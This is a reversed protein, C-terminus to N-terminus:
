SRRKGEGGVDSGTAVGERTTTPRIQVSAGDVLRLQGDVVIADGGKLGKSVVSRQGITRAVTVHVLDAKQGDRIVFVYPGQQGILVASSPISIANVDTGLTARASVFAGPWLLENRNPMIAKALVTGTALDVTNEIYALHGTVATDGVTADVRVEGASLAKRLDGLLSQPIAFSVYIPDIQNVTAIPQADGAKFTTGAKLAISGIRGSVPARIETYSLSTALNVRQAEDAAIQALQVKVATAATDRQVETSIHKALLDEARTLDRRMQELQARDKALTAEAQELQAKLARGDLTFLLDGEKVHAGEKVEVSAIQSDIRPKLAISAIPQVTGVAEITVPLTKIEATAVVVPVAAAVRPKPLAVSTTGTTGPELYAALFPLHQVAVRSAEQRQWWIGGVLAALLVLVVFRRM